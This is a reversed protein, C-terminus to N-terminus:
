TTYSVKGKVPNTQENWRLYGVKFYNSGKEVTTARDGEALQVSSLAGDVVGTAQLKQQPGGRSDPTSVRGAAHAQKAMSIPVGAHVPASHPHVGMYPDEEVDIVEPTSLSVWLLLLTAVYPWRMPRAMQGGRGQSTGM